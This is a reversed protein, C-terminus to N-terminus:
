RPLPVDPVDNSPDIFTVARCRQRFFAIERRVGSSQEWGSLRLVVMETCFEMFADDFRVWYDSGLTEGEKALVLDIPHTMTLPSYVIRGQEILKAAAKTISSFRELRIEPLAHTYPGGLYVIGPKATTNM